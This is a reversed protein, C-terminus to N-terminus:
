KPDALNIESDREVTSPHLRLLAKMFTLAFYQHLSHLEEQSYRSACIM